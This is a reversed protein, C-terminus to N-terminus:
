PQMGLTLVVLLPAVASGLAVGASRAVAGLLEGTRYGLLRSLHRHGLWANLLPPLCLAVAVWVLGHFAAAIVLGIKLPQVVLQIRLGLDIRGLAIFLPRGLHVFPTIAGALCLIQVLPVAADWQPGFLVRLIPHALLALVVSFPWGVATLYAVGRLYSDKLAHGQRLKAAFAPLLVPMLGELVGKRYIQITSTARHLLGAAEIGLLRGAAISPMQNGLETLAALASSQCGFKLVTRWHRLSPRLLLLGPRLLHAAVASTLSGAVLGYALSLAGGGTLALALSVAATMGAGAVGLAYLRGFQMERRMMALPPTGFPMAVFTLSLVGIVPALEPEGYWAAIADRALFLAIGLPWAIAFAVSYATELKRRELSKEQVLYNGVGFDQLVAALTVVASAVAFTGFEAPTLLRALVVVAGLQIALASYRQAFSLAVSRRISAM